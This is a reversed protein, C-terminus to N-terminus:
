AAHAVRREEQAERAAQRRDLISRGRAANRQYGLTIAGLGALWQPVPQRRLLVEPAEVEDFGSGLAHRLQDAILPGVARLVGEYGRNRLRRALSFGRGDAFSPFDIATLALRDLFPAIEDLKATNPLYVGLRDGRELVSWGEAALRGLPLVVDGAPLPADEAVRVYGDAKLGSADILPM